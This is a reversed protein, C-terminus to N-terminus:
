LHYGELCDRSRANQRLYKIEINQLLVTAFERVCQRLVRWSSFCNTDAQVQGGLQASFRANLREHEIVQIMFTRSCESRSKDRPRDWKLVWLISYDESCLFISKSEVCHM